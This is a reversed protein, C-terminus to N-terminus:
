REYYYQFVEELRLDRVELDALRYKSLRHVLEDLKGAPVLIRARSGHIEIVEVGEFELDEARLEGEVQVTVLKGRRKLLSEISELAVLRGNRLLAVRDAVMQVENLVHSSFFITAGRRAEERIFELLRRRMLPDLGMTPEDMIVLEPRHMFALVVALLQKMGTSYAEVRMGLDLPFTGLLEDLRSSEVSHLRSFLRIIDRGRLGRPFDFDGPVFGIRRRAEAFGRGTVDFGLVSVKGRDPKVFGMLVRITTTKGAGNPGLYGFVEGRRVTFSINELAKIRGYSKSLGEVVIAESRPM